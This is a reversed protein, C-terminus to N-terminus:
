IRFVVSIVRFLIHSERCNQLTPPKEFTIRRVTVIHLRGLVSHLNGRRFKRIRKRDTRIPLIPPLFVASEFVYCVSAILFYAAARFALNQLSNDKISLLVRDDLGLLGIRFGIKDM